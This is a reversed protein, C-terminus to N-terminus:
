IIIVYQFNLTGFIAVFNNLYEVELVRPLLDLSGPPKHKIEITETKPNTFSNEILKILNENSMQEVANLELPPSAWGFLRCASPNTFRIKFSKDFM